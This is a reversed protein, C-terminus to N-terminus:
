FSTLATVLVECGGLLAGNHSDTWFHLIGRDTGVFNAYNQLNWQSLMEERERCIYLVYLYTNLFISM